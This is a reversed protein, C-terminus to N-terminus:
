SSSSLRENLISGQEEEEIYNESLNHNGEYEYSKEEKKDSERVKASLIYNLIRQHENERLFEFEKIKAQM